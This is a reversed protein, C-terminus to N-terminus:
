HAHPPPLNPGAPRSRAAAEGAVTLAALAGMVLGAILAVRIAAEGPNAPGSFVLQVLVGAAAGAALGWATHRPEWSGGLLAGVLAGTAGLAAPDVWSGLDQNTIDPLADVGGGIAGAVGGLLLGVITRTPANRGGRYSLALWLALAAGVLAWSATRRAVSVAIGAAETKQEEPSPMLETVLWNAVLGAALALLVGQLVLAAPSAWDPETRTTEHDVVHEDPPELKRMGCDELAQRLRDIGQPWYENYMRHAQRDALKRIGAPLEPALPMDAGDVLVPIVSVEQRELALKVELEVYDESTGTKALAAWDRGIVVLMVCSEDVATRIEEPWPNGPGITVVDIFVRDPGFYESAWEYIQRAYNGPDGRRYSIFVKPQVTV